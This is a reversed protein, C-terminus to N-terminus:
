DKQHWFQWWRHKNNGTSNDSLERQLTGAHLAQAERFAKTLESIQEDRRAIQLDKENLQNGLTEIQRDKERIQNWLNAVLQTNIDVNPEVMESPFVSFANESIVKRGEVLKCHNKLRKNVQKYVAQPSVGVKKAFEAVTYYKKDMFNTYCIRRMKDVVSLSSIIYQIINSSYKLFYFQEVLFLLVWTNFYRM